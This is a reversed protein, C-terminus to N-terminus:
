ASKYQQLIKLTDDYLEEKATKAYVFDGHTWYPKTIEKGNKLNRLKSKLIDTDTKVTLWDYISNFIHIPTDIKTLNYDAPRKGNKFDYQCFRFSNILQGYHLVQKSGAGAPFHSSIVPVFSNDMEIQNFGLIAFVFTKCIVKNILPNTCSSSALNNLFAYSPRFEYKGITIDVM